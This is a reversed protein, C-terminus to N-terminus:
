INQGVNMIKKLINIGNWLTGNENVLCWFPLITITKNPQVSHYKSPIPIYNTTMLPYVNTTEM